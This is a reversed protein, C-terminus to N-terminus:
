VCDQGTKALCVDVYFSDKGGSVAIASDYGAGNIGRYKDCIKELEKYRAEWDIKKRNEYAQCASCIGEESFKIGPRTNPMVCKKCYKIM